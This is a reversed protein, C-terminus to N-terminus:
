FMEDRYKLLTEVEKRKYELDWKRNLHHLCVSKINIGHLELMYAYTSLQLEYYHVKSNPIYEIPELMMVTGYNKYFFPRNTLKGNTKFDDLHAWKKGRIKEIFVKDSQGALEHEDSWLLLEPYYYGPELESLHDVIAENKGKIREKPYTKFKKGDFTNIMFGQEYAKNEQELHYKNGRKISDANKADWIASLRQKRANFEEERGNIFPLALAILGPDNIARGGNVWDAKIDVFDPLMENLAGYSLWHDRPYPPVFNSLFSSVSEYRVGDKTYIHGEEQFQVRGM